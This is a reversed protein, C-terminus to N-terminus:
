TMDCDDLMTCTYESDPWFDLFLHFTSFISNFFIVLGRSMAALWGPLDKNMHSMLLRHRHRIWIGPLPILRHSISPIGPLIDILEDPTNITHALRQSRGKNIMLLDDSTIMFPSSRDESLLPLQSVRLGTSSRSGWLRTHGWHLEQQTWPRHATSRHLSSWGCNRDEIPPFAATSSSSEMDNISQHLQFYIKRRGLYHEHRETSSEISRHESETSCLEANSRIEKSSINHLRSVVASRRGFFTTLSKVLLEHTRDRELWLMMWQDDSAHFHVPLSWIQIMQFRHFSRLVPLCITGWLEREGCALNTFTLCCTALIVRIFTYRNRYITERNVM